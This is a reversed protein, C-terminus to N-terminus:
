IRGLYDGLGEIIRELRMGRSGKVLVWDGEGVAKELGDLVEGVNQTALIKQGNMGSTKAGEALRQAQEGLFFLNKFGLLGLRRGAKEHMEFSLSGLELMDGLVLIGPNKGKMEIFAALTAELSDPNCNYSEDLIRVGRKLLLIKGRGPIPRFGELGEAIGDLDVGLSAAMAAAALANYVNHRGYTALAVRRRLSGMALFFRVKGETELTLGSGQVDAERLLSFTMKLCRAPAALKEVRPDDLNVAIRDGAGLNEWLEGKARAVGELSELFELHASGINTITSVQPNSIEKLRRVEGSESMGMELVAVDHEPSLRLLILPLGILNNLNGETKLVRFGGCLIRATMEKTTTKGNSGTIAVVKAAQRDRWFHALDGLAKLVDGVVICFRGAFAPSRAM